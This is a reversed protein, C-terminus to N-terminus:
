WERRLAFLAGSDDASGIPLGTAVSGRPHRLVFMDGTFSRPVHAIDGRGSRARALSGAVEAVYGRTEAPLPRGSRLHAAYRGPGANYAAFLGPYGFRRYMAALYATGALINDGPDHPDSGLRHAARMEAWTTPMLQMLGMAGASSTTPRGQIHTRGGSEARIVREIWGAPVGFRASAEAIEARWRSVPDPPHGGACVPAAWLLSAAGFLTRLAAM